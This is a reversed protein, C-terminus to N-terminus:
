QFHMLEEPSAVKFMDKPRSTKWPIFKPALVQRYMCCDTVGLPVYGGAPFVVPCLRTCCLMGEETGIEIGVEAESFIYCSLWLAQM